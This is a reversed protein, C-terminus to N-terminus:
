RLGGKNSSLHLVYKESVWVALKKCEDVYSRSLEFDGHALKNRMDALEVQQDINFDNEFVLLLFYIKTRQNGKTSLGHRAMDIAVPNGSPVDKNVALDDSIIEIISYYSMFSFRLSVDELDLAEKLRKRIQAAKKSRKDTKLSLKEYAQVLAHIDPKPCDPYISLGMCRGAAGISRIWEGDYEEWQEYSLSLRYRFGLVPLVRDLCEYLDFNSGGRHSEADAITECLFAAMFGEEDRSNGQGSPLPSFTMEFDNLKFHMSKGIAQDSYVVTSLKFRTAKQGKEQYALWRKADEKNMEGRQEVQVDM